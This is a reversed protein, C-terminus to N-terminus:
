LEVQVVWMERLVLRNWASLEHLGRVKGADGRRQSLSQRGDLKQLCFDSLCKQSKRRGISMNLKEDTGKMNEELISLDGAKWSKRSGTRLWSMIMKKRSQELPRRLTRGAEVSTRGRRWSQRWVAASDRSMSFPAPWEGGWFWETDGKASWIYHLYNVMLLLARGATTGASQGAEDQMVSGRVVSSKKWISSNVLNSRVESDENGYEGIGRM